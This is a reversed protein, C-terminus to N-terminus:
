KQIQGQQQQEEQQQQQQQEEQQQQQSETPTPQPACQSSLCDCEEVQIYSYDVTSGDPCSLAVHQKSTKVEQCCKCSHEMVNMESSYKSSTSCNGECYTLPPCDPSLAPCTRKVTVLVFKDDIVECEYSTCNNGPRYWSKGPQIIVNSSEEKLICATPTCEGCCQGAVEKYAYGQYFVSSAVCGPMKVCTTHMCCDGPLKEQKLEYGLPCRDISKPCYTTNCICKKHPCCPDELTTVLVPVYGEDVCPEPAPTACIKPQCQVTLSYKECTCEQCNSNWVSGPARPMGDPGVCSCERVCANSYDNFLKTGPPCYCGETIGEGSHQIAKTDCTPPNLPGCPEYVKGTPCTFPCSGNTKARWDICVGKTACLSAYIELGSCQMSTNTMYCADFNCGQYFPKPPIVDHCKSFIDSWIMQCLPSPKCTPPPPPTTAHIPPPTFCYKKKDDPVRWAPAMHPCDTIVGSPLRCEDKKDNTCTGCQGETNNGFKSYPLKMSFILGSFTVTAGIEAIEVMMNVGLTSVSIGDEQFGANVIQNNFYIKNAEVGNFLERTLLIKASKYFIIISQPCSLGDESNCFYNDILVKFNGYKPIIEQVLVYTCNDLFTYYTGDFTIYHPDGWGSCVCECEYHYCCGDDSFVKVPPYGNECVLKEVPPCKVQNVVIKNNGECTSRTCNSVWTEGE